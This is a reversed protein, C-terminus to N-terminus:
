QRKHGSVKQGPPEARLDVPGTALTFEIKRNLTAHSDFEKGLGTVEFRGNEKDLIGTALDSAGPNFNYRDEAHLTMDMSFRRSAKTADVDVRVNAEIWVVHAGIAKQWNETGPYGYRPNLLDGYEDTAGIPIAGSQIVFTNGGRPDHLEIAAARADEIASAVIQAGARDDKAFKEYSFTVDEGTAELFHGYMRTADSLDPRSFEAAMLMAAWKAKQVYDKATSKQRKSEDINGNGDDLFGHDFRFVPPTASRVLRFPVFDGGPNTAPSSDKGRKDHQHRIKDRLSPPGPLFGPDNSALLIPEDVGVAAITPKKQLPLPFETARSLVITNVNSLGDGSRAVFVVRPNSQPSAQTKESVVTM